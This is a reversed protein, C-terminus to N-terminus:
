WASKYQSVFADSINYKKAIEKKYAKAEDFTDFQGVAYKYLGDQEIEYVQEIDPIISMLDASKLKKASAKIEVRYFARDEDSDVPTITKEIGKDEVPKATDAEVVKNGFVMSVVQAGDYGKKSVQKLLKKAGKKKSFSETIYLFGANQGTICRINATGNLTDFDTKLMRSGENPFLQVLWVTGEETPEVVPLYNPDELQTKQEPEKQKAPRNRGSSGKMRNIPLRRSRKGRININRKNEALYFSVNYSDFDETIDIPIDNQKFNFQGSVAAENVMVIYYGNPLYMVFRGDGTTLTSFTKGNDQNVATIRINGIQLKKSTGFRDREVLIAGSIRAGKSLPIFITKNKDVTRYFTKGDFWGGMSVLPTATIVYDGLPVNQYEVMGDNNTVLDYQENGGYIFEGSANNNSISDNLKFHILMDGIGEENLDKVGNGNMDKFAIVQVDYNKHLGIPVNINFKVGAGIEFRSNSSSPVVTETTGGIGSYTRSYESEGILIYRAYASFRFGSKAYYFFEPRINLQQRNHITNFYYNLSSNLKMKNNLFWLDHFINAFLKQSNEETLVYQIQEMQFYPGYYYRATAQLHKYRVSGRVFAIFVEGLEPNRSFHTYGAFSSAYFKFASRSSYRYDFFVGGTNADIPKSLITHYSPQFIFLNPGNRYYFKMSYEEHNNYINNSLLKGKSYMDPKFDSYRYSAEIQFTRNFYYRLSPSFNINGRRILYSPSGYNANVSFRLKNFNGNYGFEGGYGVVSLPSLTDWNHNEVSYGGGVRFSHRRGLNFNLSTVGLDSSIKNLDNDIHQYNSVWNIKKLTLRHFAGYGSAYYYNFLTPKRIYIGGLTNNYLTVSGKAGKGNLGTNTGTSGIDGIEISYKEHQYGIYQYNGLYSNADLQNKVFDAQFYYNLRSNDEFTKNGYINVSNYTQESLADYANIEVTVPLSNYKTEKIKRENAVKFFDINGSWSKNNGKGLSESNIKIKVRYRNQVNNSPRGNEESPDITKSLKVSYVFSTDRGGMLFISRSDVKKINGENDIIELGKEAQIDIRLSEDSNGENSISISFTTSDIENTFYKKKESTYAQWSSIKEVEIYWMANAITYNENSIFVNVLYSTNGVVDFAPKIRIPFYMTDRPEMKITRTDKGFLKWGAPSSIQIEIDMIKDTNNVVFLVNTAMETARIKTRDQSFGLQVGYASINKTSSAEQGYVSPLISLFWIIFVLVKKIM